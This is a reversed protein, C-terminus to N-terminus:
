ENGGITNVPKTALWFSLVGGKRACVEVPAFGAARLYAPVEGRLNPATFHFFLLPRCLLWWLPNTPRDIDVLLLRGGPKLVRYV